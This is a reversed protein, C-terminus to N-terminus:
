SERSHSSRSTILLFVGQRRSRIGPPLQSSSVDLDREIVRSRCRSWDFPNAGEVLEFDAMATLAGVAALLILAIIIIM